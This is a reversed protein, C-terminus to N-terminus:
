ITRSEQKEKPEEILRYADATGAYHYDTVIFIKTNFLHTAGLKRAESMLSDLTESIYSFTDNSHISKSHVMGVPELQPVDRELERMSFVYNRYDESFVKVESAASDSSRLKLTPRPLTVSGPLDSSM